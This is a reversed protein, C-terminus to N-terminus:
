SGPAASVSTVRLLAPGRRRRNLASRRWGAPQRLASIPSDVTRDHSLRVHEGGALLIALRKKAAAPEGSSCTKSRELIAQTAV